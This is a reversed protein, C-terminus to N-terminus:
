IVSGKIINKTNENLYTAIPGIIVAAVLHEYGSDKVYTIIPMADIYGLYCYLPGNLEVVIVDELNLKVKIKILKEINNEVEHYTEYVKGVIENLSTIYHQAVKIEESTYKM